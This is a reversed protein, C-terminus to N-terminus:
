WLNRKLAYNYLVISSLSHISVFDAHGNTVGGFVDQDLKDSMFAEITLFQNLRNSVCNKEFM